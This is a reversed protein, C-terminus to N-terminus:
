LGLVYSSELPGKILRNCTDELADERGVRTKRVDYQQYGARSTLDEQADLNLGQM